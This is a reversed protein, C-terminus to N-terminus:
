LHKVMISGHEKERFVSFGLHKYFAAANTNKAGVGLHIGPCKREGLASFLSEMLRRGCGQGQLEPLIDIHLHAPYEDIWPEPDGKTIDLHILAYINKEFDSATRHPPPPYPYRRRLDPLWKSEFWNRFVRTDEAALLYGKPILGSEAIFCLSPDFFLYPAAYYQGLILPDRFLHAADEGASGTSLCISYLYPIDPCVANRIYADM